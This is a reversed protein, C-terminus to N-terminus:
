CNLLDFEHAFLRDIYIFVLFNLCQILNFSKVYFSDGFSKIIPSKSTHISTTFGSFNTARIKHQILCVHNNNSMVRVAVRIDHVQLNAISM